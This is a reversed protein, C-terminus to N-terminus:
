QTVTHNHSMTVTYGHSQTVNHYQSPTVTHCQSQSISGKGTSLVFGAIWVPSLEMEWGTVNKEGRGIWVSSCYLGICLLERGRKNVECFQLLERGIKRAVCFQLVSSTM